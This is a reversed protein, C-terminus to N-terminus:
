LVPEFQFPSVSGGTCLLIHAAVYQELRVNPQLGVGKNVEAEFEKCTSLNSYRGEGVSAEDFTVKVVVRNHLNFTEITRHLSTGL